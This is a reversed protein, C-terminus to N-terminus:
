TTHPHILDPMERGPSVPVTGEAKRRFLRSPPPAHAAAPVLSPLPSEALLMSVPSCSTEPVLRKQFDAGAYIYLCIQSLINCQNTTEIMKKIKWTMYPIDDKENFKMNKLPTPEVVLWDMPDM